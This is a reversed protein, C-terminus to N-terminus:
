RVTYWLYDSTDKTTNIQELLGSATFSNNSWIGIQEKYWVWSSPSAILHERASTTHEHPFEGLNKQSVVKM